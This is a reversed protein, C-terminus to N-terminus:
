APKQNKAVEAPAISARQVVTGFIAGDSREIVCHDSGFINFLFASLPVYLHVVFLPKITRSLRKLLTQTEKKNM